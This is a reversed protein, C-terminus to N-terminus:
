SKQGTLLWLVSCDLIKSFFKLEFDCVFRTGGEIRSLSIRDILVGQTQLQAALDSQSMKARKRAERIRSGCVNKKGDYEYIKM